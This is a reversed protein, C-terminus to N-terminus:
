CRVAVRVAIGAEAAQMADNIEQLSFPESVLSDFPLRHQQKALFDLSRVLHEPKYNHIGRITLCKRTIHNGTLRFESAPTVLGAILLRGGVRLSGVAVEVASPDGCVEFVADCGHSPSNRKIWSVRDETSMDAVQLCADAGFERAINLRKADRDLVLVRQAGADRALAVLYIGLLGAGEIVVCDDTEIPITDIANVVTALACNAPAVIADPLENPVRLLTTGPLLCIYEAYGGTLYPYEDCCSHGYKFLQECKQPLAHNCFFCSGCSAMITWTVRDGVAIPNGRGDRVSGTIRVVEGISEHGLISPMPEARRGRTTHIDSGCITSLRIRCMVAGAEPQDPIRFDQMRLKQNPREFVAARAHLPIAAPKKTENSAPAQDEAQSMPPVKTEFELDRSHDVM